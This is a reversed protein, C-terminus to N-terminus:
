DLWERYPRRRVLEHKIEEDEIIRGQETDVFFLRGPQLRGKKLVNEPAIELVGAESAMVVFGDRTVTYRSPRLGNRDLVAGIKRGDTFAISAPGDWPELLYSHYEFFARREEDMGEHGDWAEPIMMMMAHPLSRGALVLLELVNDFQATDSGGPIIVPFLKKLEEGFLDSQLTGERAHMWNVNGRLTNIEGNHAVYRFPQALDWTPFTNTSYRQHVLALASDLASDTLDPYFGEIQHALLLGKYVLTRSSLSTVHFANAQAGGRARVMKEAVRRLVYLRREFEDQGIGEEAGVFIQRMEPLAERAIWGIRTPDVPVQRWGLVRQGQAAVAREIAEIQFRCEEADPALFILGSAYGGPPPLAFGLKKTEKRLFGDPMQLLLGAGDGTDPDAGTAGRHTLNVLVQIGRRVVDHSKEGRINAVFGVGCSDHELSPDYLGQRPPLGPPRTM